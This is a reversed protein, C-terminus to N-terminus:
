KHILSVVQIRHKGFEGEIVVTCLNDINLSYHLIYRYKKQFEINTIM